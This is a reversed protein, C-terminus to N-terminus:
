VDGLQARVTAEPVGARNRPAIAAGGKLRSPVSRIPLQAKDQVVAAPSLKVGPVAALQPAQMAFFAGLQGPRLPHEAQAAIGNRGVAADPGDRQTVAPGLELHAIGPVTPEGAVPLQRGGGRADVVGNGKAIAKGRQDASRCRHRLHHPDASALALSKGDRRRGRQGAFDRVAAQADAAYEGKAAGAPAGDIANVIGRGVGRMAPRGPGQRGGQHAHVAARGAHGIGTQLHAGLEIGTAAKGDEVDIVGAAGAEPTGVPLPEIPLPTDGVHGIARRSGFIEGAGAEGIAGPDGNGAAAGAAVRGQHRQRGGARKRRAAAM